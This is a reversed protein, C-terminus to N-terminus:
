NEDPFYITTAVGIPSPATRINFEKVGDEISGYNWTSTFEDGDKEPVAKGLATAHDALCDLVAPKFRPYSEIWEQFRLTFVLTGLQNQM